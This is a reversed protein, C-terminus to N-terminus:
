DNNEGSSQKSESIVRPQINIFDELSNLTSKIRGTMQANQSIKNDLYEDVNLDDRFHEENVRPSKWSQRLDSMERKMGTIDKDKQTIAPGINAGDVGRRTATQQKRLKEKINDEYDEESNEDIEDDEKLISSVRKIINDVKIPANEDSINLEALTEEGGAPPEDVGTEGAPEEGFGGFADGGLDGTDAAATEEPTDLQTAEITLDQLKDEKLGRKIQEIEEDTL